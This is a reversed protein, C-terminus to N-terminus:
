IRYSRRIETCGARPLDMLLEVKGRSRRFKIAGSLAPRIDSRPMFIVEVMSLRTFEADSFYSTGALKHIFDAYDGVTLIQKGGTLGHLIKDRDLYEDPANLRNGQADYVEYEHLKPNWCTMTCPVGRLVPQDRQHNEQRPWPGAFAFEGHSLLRELFATIDVSGLNIREYLQKGAMCETLMEKMVASFDIELEPFREALMKVNCAANGFPAGLGIGVSITFFDKERVTFTYKESTIDVPCGDYGNVAAKPHFFLDMEERFPAENMFVPNSIPRNQGSEVSAVLDVVDRFVEPYLRNEPVYDYKIRCSHLQPARLLAALQDLQEHAFSKEETKLSNSCPKYTSRLVATVPRNRDVTKLSLWYMAIEVCKEREPTVIAYCTDSGDIEYAKWFSFM